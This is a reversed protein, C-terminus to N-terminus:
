VHAASMVARFKSLAAEWGRSSAPRSVGRRCVTSGDVFTVTVTGENPDPYSQRAQEDVEMRMRRALKRAPDDGNEAAAIFRWPDLAGGLLAIAVSAETSYQVAMVDGPDPQQESGSM